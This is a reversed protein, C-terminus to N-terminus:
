TNKKYEVGKLFARVAKENSKSWAIVTVMEFREESEVWGEFQAVTMAGLLPMASCLQASSTLTEKETGEYSKMTNQLDELEQNAETYRKKIKALKEHKQADIKGADFDSDLKKIAAEILANVRDGTTVGANAEVEAQEQQTLLKMVKSKQAHIKKNLKDLKQNFQEYLDTGPTSVKDEISMNTRIYKIVSARASLTAEMAKLSRKILFSDDYSPDECDVSAEGIAIFVKKDSNWGETVGRKTLFEQVKDLANVEQAQSVDKPAQLLDQVTADAVADEMAVQANEAVAQVDQVPNNEEYEVAFSSVTMCLTCMTAVVVIKYYHSIVM